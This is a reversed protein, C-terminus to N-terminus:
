RSDPARSWSEDLSTRLGELEARLSAELRKISRNYVLCRQGRVDFKLQSADSVLLVTPRGRGWAYGVELYVNPNAESLDAIVLSASAVREMVWDAVDGTFTSADARECLCGAANVAGQIGYHFIDDMEEAFPMAVFARPKGHSGYGVSRFRDPLAQLPPVQRDPSASPGDPRLNALLAALRQARGPNAEVITVKQLGLPFAGSNIADMIGAVESVFAENEDLGYGAGHITLAVHRAHPTAVALAELVQRGFGRIGEYGFRHLPVVSRLRPVLESEHEGEGRRRGHPRQRM